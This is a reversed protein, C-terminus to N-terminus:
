NGSPYMSTGLPGTEDVINELPIRIPNLEDLVDDNSVKSFLTIHNGKKNFFKKWNEAYKSSFTSKGSGSPGAIYFCERTKTNPIPYITGDSIEFEDSCNNNLDHFHNYYKLLKKPITIDNEDSNLLDELQKREKNSLL